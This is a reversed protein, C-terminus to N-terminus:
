EEIFYLTNEDPTISDYEDQTLFVMEPNDLNDPFDDPLSEILLNHHEQIHEFLEIFKTLTVNREIVPINLNMPNKLPM